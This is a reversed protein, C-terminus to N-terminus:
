LSNSIIEIKEPLYHQIMEELQEPFIPKALFDKFGEALYKERAGSIANATLMIVPTDKCLSKEMGTMRHLTEIGDMEPMMHDLFILDYHNREVLELCERGCSAEMVQIKTKKLLNVFVKRNM